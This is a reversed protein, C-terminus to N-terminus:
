EFYGLARLRDRVAEEDEFSLDEEIYQAEADSPWKEQPEGKVIPHTQLSEATLIETLVRGDMDSPVPLGLLHMVTPAIDEIQLGEQAEPKAAV